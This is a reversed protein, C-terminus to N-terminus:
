PLLCFGGSNQNSYDWYKMKFLSEMAWGTIYELITAGIAGILYVLWLVEKVPITLFLILVAGTGYLPLMPIQLFGRNM